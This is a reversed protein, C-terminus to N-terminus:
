HTLNIEETNRSLLEVPGEESSLVGGSQKQFMQMGLRQQKVGKDSASSSCHRRRAFGSFQFSLFMDFPIKFPLKNSSPLVRWCLM